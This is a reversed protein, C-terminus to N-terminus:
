EEDKDETYRELQALSRELHDTNSKSYFYDDDSVPLEPIGDDLKLIEDNWVRVVNNDFIYQIARMMGSPEYVDTELVIKPINFLEVENKKKSKSISNKLIPLKGDKM